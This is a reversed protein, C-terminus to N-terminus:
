NRDLEGSRVANLFAVWANRGVVIAEIEPSKSDRLAVLDGVIAMELCDQGM